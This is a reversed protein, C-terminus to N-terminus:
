KGAKDNATQAAQTAKELAQALETPTQAGSLLAVSGNWIYKPYISANILEDNFLIVGSSGSNTLFGQIRDYWATAVSPVDVKYPAVKFPSFSANLSSFKAAVEPQTFWDIFKEVATLDSKKSVVMVESSITVDTNKGPYGDIAPFLMTNLEFTPPSAIATELMWSGQEHYASNGLLFQTDMANTADGLFGPQFYPALAALMEFANVVAPDTWKPTDPQGPLITRNYLQVAAKNGMTRQMLDGMYHGAPSLDKAGLLVPVGGGKKIIKLQDVWDQYTNVDEAKLGYKALYTPNSWIINGVNLDSSVGWVKGNLNAGEIPADGVARSAIKSNYFSTLNALVGGQALAYVSPGAIDSAITPPSGSAFSNNLAPQYTSGSSPQVQNVIAIGTEKTFESFLGDLSKPETPDYNWRNFITITSGGGAAGSSSGCASTILSGLGVAAVAGASRGMFQRRTVDM